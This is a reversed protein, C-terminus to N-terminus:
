RECARHELYRRFLRDRVAYRGRQGNALRDVHGRAALRRLAQRTAAPRLGRRGAGAEIEGSPRAEVVSAVEAVVVREAPAMSAWRAAFIEQSVAAFAREVAVALEIKGVRGRSAADFAFYALKQIYYPRGGALEVIEAVVADDFAVGTDGLPRTIAATAAADDLPGLTIPEFYRVLPEHAGRISGFM